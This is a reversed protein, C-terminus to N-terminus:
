VFVYTYAILETHIYTHIYTYIYTYHTRVPSLSSVAILMATAQLRNCGLANM